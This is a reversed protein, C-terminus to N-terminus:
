DCEGTEGYASSEISRGICDYEHNQSQQFGFICRTSCDSISSYREKNITYNKFLTNTNEMDANWTEEVNMSGNSNLSINVDLSKLEAEAAFSINICCTFAITLFFMSFIKFKNKQM